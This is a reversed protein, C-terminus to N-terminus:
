LRTALLGGDVPLVTGTVYSSRDSLLWAAAEAVEEPAGPRRLPTHREFAERARPLAAFDSRVKETLIAGPAIANVRVGRPSFEAVAARVLGIVGHKAAQYGADGIGGTLSAVSGAVVVSGRGRDLMPPLVARLALWVGKLTTGHVEDWLAETLEVLTGADAHGVAANLYAGDIRGHRGLAEGVLRDVGAATSLDAPVALAGDIGDAVEALRDAGRAGLVVHAGEAAFLRAAAAGIGRSAGTVLVVKGALLSM